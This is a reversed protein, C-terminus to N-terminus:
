RRHGRCYFRKKLVQETGPLCTPGSGAKHSPVASGPLSALHVPSKAPTLVRSSPALATAARLLIKTNQGCSDAQSDVYCIFWALQSRHSRPPKLIQAPFDPPGLGSTHHLCRSWLHVYGSVEGPAQAKDHSRSLPGLMGVPCCELSIQAPWTSM